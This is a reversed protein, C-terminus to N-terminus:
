AQPETRRKPSKSPAAGSILDDLAFVRGTHDTISILGGGAAQIERYGFVAEDATAVERRHSGSFMRYTLFYPM